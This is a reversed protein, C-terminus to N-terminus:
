STALDLLNRFELLGRGIRAALISSTTRLREAIEKQSLGGFFALDIAERKDQSLRDFAIRAQERESEWERENGARELLAPPRDTDVLDGNLRLPRGKRPRSVLREIAKQRSIMVAWTFLRNRSPDYTGIRKWMQIFAQELVEESEKRDHLIASVVSFLLSAFQDYFLAFAQEQGRKMELVLEREDAPDAVPTKTANPQDSRVGADVLCLFGRRALPSRTM